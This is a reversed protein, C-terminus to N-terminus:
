KDDEKSCFVRVKHPATAADFEEKVAERKKDSMDCVNSTIGQALTTAYCGSLAVPMLLAILTIKLM